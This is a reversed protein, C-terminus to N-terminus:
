DDPDPDTGCRVGYGSLAKYGTETIIEYEYDPPVIVWDGSSYTHGNLKFDGSLIYRFQPEDKHRHSKITTGSDVETTVLIRFKSIDIPFVFKKVGDPFDKLLTLSRWQGNKFTKSSIVEKISFPDIFESFQLSSKIIVEEREERSM